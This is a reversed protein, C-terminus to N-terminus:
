QAAIQAAVSRVRDRISGQAETWWVGRPEALALVDAREDESLGRDDCLLEVSRLVVSDSYITRAYHYEHPHGMMWAQRSDDWCDVQYQTQSCKYMVVQRRAQAIAARVSLPRNANM